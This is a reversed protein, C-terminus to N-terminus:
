LLRAIVYQPPPTAAEVTIGIPNVVLEYGESGATKLLSSRLTFRIPCPTNASEVIPLAYGTVARLRSAFLEGVPRALKESCLIETAPGIVATGETRVVRM